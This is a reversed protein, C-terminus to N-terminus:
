PTKYCLKIVSYIRNTLWWYQLFWDTVPQLRAFCYHLMQTFLHSKSTKTNQWTTCFCTLYSFLADKSQDSDWYCTYWFTGFQINFKYYSPPPVNEKSVCNLHMTHSSKCALGMQYISWKYQYCTYLANASHMTLAATSHNKKSQRM